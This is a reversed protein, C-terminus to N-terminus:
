PVFVSNIWFFLVLYIWLIDLFHWYLSLLRLKLQKHPDSFYVLVSVPDKMRTYATYLFLILFPLGGGVHIFHLISIAYLYAAMNGSLLTINQQFMHIWAFYQATMFTISLVVTALLYLQYRETQDAKYAKKALQLVGSSAMLIFTNTVFLIPVKLPRLEFQFRTYLYAGTLGLFLMTLGSLLLVMMINYPHLSLSRYDNVGPM